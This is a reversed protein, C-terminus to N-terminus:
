GFLVCSGNRGTDDVWKKCKDNKLKKTKMEMIYALIEKIIM